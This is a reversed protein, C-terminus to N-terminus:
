ITCIYHLKSSPHLPDPVLYNCKILEQVANTFTRSSMGTCKMADTRSLETDKKMGLYIYLKFASGSLAQQAKILNENNYISYNNDKPLDVFRIVKQNPASM